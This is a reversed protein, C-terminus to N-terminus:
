TALPPVTIFAMLSTVATLSVSLALDGRSLKSIVNSSVGGPCFSLLMVGAAFIPKLEFYTVVGFAIVPLLVIQCVVGVLIARGGTFVRRFDILRLGLGLSFMIFAQAAPVVVNIAFDM